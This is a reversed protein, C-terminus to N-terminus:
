SFNADIFIEVIRLWNKRSLFIFNGVSVREKSIRQEIMQARGKGGVVVVLTGVSLAAFSASFGDRKLLTVASSVPLLWGPLLWCNALILFVLETATLFSSPTTKVISLLLGRALEM